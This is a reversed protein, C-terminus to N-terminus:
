PTREYPFPSCGKGVKSCSDNFCHSIQNVAIRVSGSNCLVVVFIHRSAIRRLPLNLFSWHTIGVFEGSYRLISQAIFCRYRLCPVPNGFLPLDLLTVSPQGKGDIDM